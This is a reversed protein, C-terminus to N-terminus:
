DEIVDHVDQAVQLLDVLGICLADGAFIGDLHAAVLIYTHRSVKNQSQRDFTYSSALNICFNLSLVKDKSVLIWVACSFVKQSFHVVSM